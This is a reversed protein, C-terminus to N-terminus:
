LHKKRRWHPRAFKSYSQKCNDQNQGPRLCDLRKEGLWNYTSSETYLVLNIDTSQYWIQERYVTNLFIQISCQMSIIPIMNKHWIVHPCSNSHLIQIPPRDILDVLLLSVSLSVRNLTSWNHCSWYRIWKIMRKTYKLEWKERSQATWYLLM